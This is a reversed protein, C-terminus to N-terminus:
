PGDERDIGDRDPGDLARLSSGAGPTRSPTGAPVDPGLSETRPRSRLSSGQSDPCVRSGVPGWEM